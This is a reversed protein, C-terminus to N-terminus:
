KITINFIGKDDILGPNELLQACRRVFVQAVPDDPVLRLAKEFKDTADKFDRQRYLKLADHHLSLMDQTKNDVKGIEGVISFIRLAADRGKVRIHDIERCIVKERIMEYTTESILNQTGYIKNVGELRAALNVTDGIATFDMRNPSGINGVILRGSNMGVRTILQITKGAKEISLKSLKQFGIVAQCSQFAHDQSEIPAGFIAMIGDGTYKDLMGNNQFIITEVQAFYDNLFAVIEHPTFLESTGTFGQLDTFVVTAEIEKGGMEVTEPNRTLSEVVAPHLYRNFVKKVQAKERGETLYNVVLVAIVSMIIAAESQVVPFFYFKNQFLYIAVIVPISLVIVSILTAKWINLRQWAYCLGALLLLSLVIWWGSNFHRIFDGRVINSFLTAYIEVGPYPELPSFPTTKLDLLGAATAGIFVAKDKFIELSIDSELGLQTQFYANLLQAFSVYTFTNGPGGPGYWFLEARGDKDVPIPYKNVAIENEGAILTSDGTYIMAASLAMYPIVRNEYRYILPIRRCVGDDDTFFNVAGPIAMSEQFIRIPATLNPYDHIYSEPGNFNAEIRFHGTIDSKTVHTSDEMQIALVVRGSRQMAEAFRADAYDASVNLRDIDPSSFIVDFAIMKAGCETLFDTMMAYVDRPWPWLLKQHEQLHNLSNQDIAIIVVDEPHIERYFTRYIMDQAQKEWRDILMTKSSLLAALSAIIGIILSVILRQRNKKM